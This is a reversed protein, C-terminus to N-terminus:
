TLPPDLKVMRPSVGQASGCAPHQPPQPTPGEAVRNFAKRVHARKMYTTLAFPASQTFSFGFRFTAIPSNLLSDRSNEKSNEKSLARIILEPHNDFKQEFLRKDKDDIVCIVSNNSHLDIGCYLTM